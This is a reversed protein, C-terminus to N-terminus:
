MEGQRWAVARVPSGDCGGLKLPLMSVVWEGDMIEELGTLNEAIVVGAGLVVKHFAYEHQAAAAADLVTEDPSLTDVGVLRVGAPPLADESTVLVPSDESLATTAASSDTELVPIDSESM